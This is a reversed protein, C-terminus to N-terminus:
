PREPDQPRRQGKVKEERVKSCEQRTVTAISPVPTVESGCVVSDFVRNDSKEEKEAGRSGEAKPKEQRRVGSATM